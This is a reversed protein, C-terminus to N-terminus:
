NVGSLTINYAILYLKPSFLQFCALFGLFWFFFTEFGVFVWIKWELINTCNTSPVRLIYTQKDHLSLALVTYPLVM